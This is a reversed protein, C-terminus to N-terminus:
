DVDTLIAHRKGRITGFDAIDLLIDDDTIKEKNDAGWIGFGIAIGICLALLVGVASGILRENGM